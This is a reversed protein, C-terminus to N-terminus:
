WRSGIQIHRFTFSATDLFLRAATDRVEATPFANERLVRIHLTPQAKNLAHVDLDTGLRHSLVRLKLFDFAM